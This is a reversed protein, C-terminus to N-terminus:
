GTVHANGLITCGDIINDGLTFGTAWAPDELFIVSDIDVSGTYTIVAGADCLLRMKRRKMTFMGELNFTGAPVRITDSAAAAANFAALSHTAGTADAGLDTVSLSEHHLKAEVAQMEASMQNHHWDLVYGLVATGPPHSSATGEFGRSCTLTNGKKATCRLIESDITIATPTIFRSGDALTVTTSAADDMAAALNSHANNIAVLLDNDTVVRAPFVATNPNQAAASLAFLVTALGPKM